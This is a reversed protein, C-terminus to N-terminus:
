DEENNFIDDLNNDFDVIYGNSDVEMIVYDGYGEHHPDLIDPVYGEYNKVVNSATDLIDIYNEDVSKYHINARVGKEWNIIQGNDLNIIPCWAFTGKELEKVCPMKPVDGNDMMDNIESTDWCLPYICCKAIALDLEREEIKIKM